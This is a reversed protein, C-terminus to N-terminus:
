LGSGSDGTTAYLATDTALVDLPPEESFRDGLSADELKALSGRVPDITFSRIVTTRPAVRGQEYLFRGSPHVSLFQASGLGEDEALPARCGLAQAEYTRVTAAATSLFALTQRSTPPEAHAQACDPALAVEPDEPPVVVGCGAALAAMALVIVSSKVAVGYVHA